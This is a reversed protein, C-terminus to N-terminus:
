RTAEKPRMDSHIIHEVSSGIKGGWFINFSCIIMTPKIQLSDCYVQSRTRERGTETKVRNAIYTNHTMYSSNQPHLSTVM